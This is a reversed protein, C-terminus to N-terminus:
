AGSDPSRGFGCLGGNGGPRFSFEKDDSVSMLLYFEAQMYAMIMYLKIFGLIDNEGSLFILNIFFVYPYQQIVANAAAM